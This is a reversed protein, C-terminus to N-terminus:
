SDGINDPNTTALGIVLAAGTVAGCTDGLLGIGPMGRTAKVALEEEMGFEPGYAVLVATCCNGYTGFLAKAEEVRNM